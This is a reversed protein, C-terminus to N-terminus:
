YMREKDKRARGWDLTRKSLTLASRAIQGYCLLKQHSDIPAQNISKLLERLIKLCPLRNRGRYQANFWRSFDRSTKSARRSMQPHNRRYFLREPVEWFRGRLCLEALLNYDSGEFSGILRTAALVDRRMMGFVPNCGAPKKLFQRFRLHPEPTCLNLKDEYENITQSKEDIFTTKAYCLVVAPEQDLIEVCREILRPACVDDHSAWKFYKGTALQVLQNYNQAAGYNSSNRYYRVCKNRDCYEKCINETGDTSANDSIILEFDGFTQSLISDIAERIFREGNFVPLGISVYVM